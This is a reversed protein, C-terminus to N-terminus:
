KGRQGCVQQVGIIVCAARGREVGPEDANLPQAVDILREHEYDEKEAEDKRNGYNAGTCKEHKADAAATVTLFLVFLM